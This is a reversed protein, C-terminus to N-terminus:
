ILSLLFLLLLLTPVRFCPLHLSMRLLFYTFWLQKSRGFSASSKRTNMASMLWTTVYFPPFFTAVNHFVTLNNWMISCGEKWKYSKTHFKISEKCKYFKRRWFYCKSRIINCIYVKACEVKDLGDNLLALTKFLTM